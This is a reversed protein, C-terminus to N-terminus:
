HPSPAAEGRGCCFWPEVGFIISVFLLNSELPLNVSCAAFSVSRVFVETSKSELVLLLTKSFNAIEVHKVKGIISIYMHAHCQSSELELCFSASESNRITSHLTTSVTATEIDQAHSQHANRAQPAGHPLQCRHGGGCGM